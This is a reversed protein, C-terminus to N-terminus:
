TSHANVIFDKLLTLAHQVLLVHIKRATLSIKMVTSEPTVQHVSANLAMLMMPVHQETRALMQRVHTMNTNAVLAPMNM